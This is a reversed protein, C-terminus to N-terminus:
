IDAMIIASAMIFIGAGFLLTLWKGLNSQYIAAISSLITGSYWTKFKTKKKSAM